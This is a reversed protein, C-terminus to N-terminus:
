STLKKLRALEKNLRLIENKQAELQSCKLNLQGQVSKNKRRVENLDFILTANDM